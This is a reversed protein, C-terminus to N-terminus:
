APLTYTTTDGITVNLIPGPTTKFAPKLSSSIRIFVLEEIEIPEFGESNEVAFFKVYYDGWQDKAHPMIRFERSENYFRLFVPLQEELEYAPNRYMATYTWNKRCTESEYKQFADWTLVKGSSIDVDYEWHFGYATIQNNEDCPIEVPEPEEEEEEPEEPPVYDTDLPIEVTDNM